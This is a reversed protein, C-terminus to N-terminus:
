KLVKYGVNHHSGFLAFSRKTEILGKRKLRRVVAVVTYKNMKALKAINTYNGVYWGDIVPLKDIISLVKKENLLGKEIPKM